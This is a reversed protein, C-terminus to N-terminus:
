KNKIMMKVDSMKEINCTKDYDIYNVEFKECANELKDNLFKEIDHKKGKLYYDYIYELYVAELYKKANRDNNLKKQHEKLLYLYDYYTIRILDQDVNNVCKNLYDNIRTNLYKWVEIDSKGDFYTKIYKRYKIEIIMLLEDQTLNFKDKKLVYVAEKLNYYKIYIDFEKVKKNRIDEIENIYNIRDKLIFKSIYEKLLLDLSKALKPKSKLAEEIIKQFNFVISTYNKKYKYDDLLYQYKFAIHSIIRPSAEFYNLYRKILKEEDNLYLEMDRCKQRTISTRFDTKVGLFKNAYDETIAHALNQKEEDELICKINQLGIYYKDEYYKIIENLNEKKPHSTILERTKKRFSIVACSDLFNNLTVKYNGNIYHIIYFRLIDRIEKRTKNEYHQNVISTFREEYHDVLKDILETKGNKIQFIAEKIRLNKM